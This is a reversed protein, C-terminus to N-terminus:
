RARVPFAELLEEAVEALRRAERALLMVHARHLRPDYDGRTNWRWYDEIARDLRRHLTALDTM